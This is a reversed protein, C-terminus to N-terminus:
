IRPHATAKNKNYSRRQISRCSAYTSALDKMSNRESQLAARIKAVQEDTLGLKEKARVLLRGQLPRQAVASEEAARANIPAFGGVALTAALTIVLYNKTKM